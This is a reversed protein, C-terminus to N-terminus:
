RTKRGGKAKGQEKFRRSQEETMDSKTRQNPRSERRSSPQPVTSGRSRQIEPSPNNYEEIREPEMDHSFYTPQYFAPDPMHQLMGTVQSEPGSFELPPATSNLVYGSPALTQEPTTEQTGAFTGVGPPADAIGTESSLSLGALDPLPSRFGLSERQSSPLIQYGANTLMGEQETVFYHFLYQLHQPNIDGLQRVRLNHQVTTPKGFNLRSEPHLKVRQSVPEMKIPLKTFELEKDLKPPESEGTYIIAHQYHSAPNKATGKFGYTNVPSGINARPAVVAPVM